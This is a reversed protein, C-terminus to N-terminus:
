KLSQFGNSDVHVEYDSEEEASGESDEYKDKKMFTPPKYDDDIKIHERCEDILDPRGNKALVSIIEDFTSQDM